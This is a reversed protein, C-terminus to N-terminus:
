KKAYEDFVLTPISGIRFFRPTFPYLTEDPKIVDRISGSECIAKEHICCLNTLQLALHLKNCFRSNRRKTVYNMTPGGGRFPKNSKINSKLKQKNLNKIYSSKDKIKDLTVSVRILPHLSRGISPYHFLYSDFLNYEVSISFGYKTFVDEKINEFYNITSLSRFSNNTICMPYSSKKEYISVPTMAYKILCNFMIQRPKYWACDAMDDLFQKIMFAVINHMDMTVKRNCNNAYYYYDYFKNCEIDPLEINEIDQPKVLKDGTYKYCKNIQKSM